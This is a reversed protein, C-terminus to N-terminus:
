KDRMENALWRLFIDDGREFADAAEALKAAGEESCYQHDSHSPYLVQVASCFEVLRKLAVRDAKLSIFDEWDWPGIEDNIFGRIISIADM